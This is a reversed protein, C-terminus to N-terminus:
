TDDSTGYGADFLTVGEATNPVFAYPMVWPLASSSMPTRLRYLAGRSGSAAVIEQPPPLDEVTSEDVTSETTTM